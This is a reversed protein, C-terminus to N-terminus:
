SQKVFKRTEVVGNDSLISAIYIGPKIDSLNLTYNLEGSNNPLEFSLVEKGILDYMKFSTLNQDGPTINVSVSNTFPNPYAVFEFNEKSQVSLFTSITSSSVTANSIDKDALHEAIINRNKAIPEFYLFVTFAIILLNKIRNTTLQMTLFNYGKV